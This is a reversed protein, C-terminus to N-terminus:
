LRELYIVRYREEVPLFIDVLIWGERLLPMLLSSSTLFSSDVSTAFNVSEGVEFFAHIRYVPDFSHPKVDM